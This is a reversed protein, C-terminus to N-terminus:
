MKLLLVVHIVHLGVLLVFKVTTVANPHKVNQEMGSVVLLFKVALNANAMLNVVKSVSM